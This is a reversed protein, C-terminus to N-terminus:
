SIYQKQKMFIHIDSHCQQCLCIGNNVDNFEDSVKIKEKDFNYKKSIDFLTNKHHAQLNIESNCKKCKGISIVSERWKNYEVSTRLYHSIKNYNDYIIGYYETKCNKNCFHLDHNNYRYKKVLITKKCNDCLTKINNYEIHYNNKCEINCFNLKTKRKNSKEFENHCYDCKVINWEKRRFKTMCERSCFEINQGRALQSEKYKSDIVFENNCCKCIITEKKAHNFKDLCKKCCFNNKGIKNKAKEFEKNCTACYVKVKTNRAKCLCDKSCYKIELGKNKQSKVYRLTKKFEKNCYQCIFSKYEVIKSM